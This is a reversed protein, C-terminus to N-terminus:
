LDLKRSENWNTKGGRGSPIICIPSLLSTSDLDLPATDDTGTCYFICSDVAKEDLCDAVSKNRVEQPAILTSGSGRRLLAVHNAALQPRM